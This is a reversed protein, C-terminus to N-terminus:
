TLGSSSRAGSGRQFAQLAALLRGWITMPEVSVPAPALDRVAVVSRAYTRAVSKAAYATAAGQVSWDRGFKWPIRRPWLASLTCFAVISIVAAGGPAAGNLILGFALSLVVLAISVPFLWAVVKSLRDRATHFTYVAHVNFISLGAGFTLYIGALLILSGSMSATSMTVVVGMAGAVLTTAGFVLWLPRRSRLRLAVLHKAAWDRSRIASALRLAPEFVFFGGLQLALFFTVGAAPIVVFLAGAASPNRVCAAVILLVAPVLSSAMAEATFALTRRIQAARPSVVLQGGVVIAYFGLMVPIYVGFGWGIHQLVQMGAVPAVSIIQAVWNDGPFALLMFGLFTAFASMGVIESFAEKAPRSPLPQEGTNPISQTTM